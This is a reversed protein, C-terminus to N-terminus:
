FLRRLMFGDYARVEESHERLYRLGESEADNETLILYDIPYMQVKEADPKQYFERYLRVNEAVEEDPIADYTGLLERYYIAHLASSLEARRSTPFTAAAEKPSVDQIWLDFFYVDRARDDSALFNNSNEARYVNLDTYVTVLELVKPHTSYVVEDPASIADLEEFLPALPQLAGWSEAQSAYALYQHRFGFLIVPILLLSLVRADHVRFFHLILSLALLAGLPQFFYWHYHHPVMSSGTIWQQHLAILGGLFLCLALPFYDTWVRKTMIVSAGFVLTWAGVFIDREPVKGWRLSTEYFLPDDFLRLLHLVYPIAAIGVILGMVILDRAAAYDKQYLLWLVLLGMSAALYSWAYVYSYVLIICLFGLVGLTIRSRTRFWSALAWCATFFLTGSFLPNTLRAYRIPETFSGDHVIYSLLDWPAGLVAGAFLLTSVVLLSEWRKKTLLILFSLMSVFLLAACLVKWVIIVTTVRIPLVMAMISPIIEPGNPQVFLQDKQDGYYASSVTWHGDVIERIRTSYYPEADALMAEIGLFDHNTDIRQLIHPSIVAICFLVLVLASLVFFRDHMRDTMRIFSVM